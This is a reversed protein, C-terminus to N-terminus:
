AGGSGGSGSGSAGTGGSGSVAAGAAGAGAMGDMCMTAADTTCLKCSSACRRIDCQVLRAALGLPYGPDSFRQSIDVMLASGAAAAIVDKCPGTAQEFTGGTCEETSASGCLCPASQNAPDGARPDICSSRRFCTLAEACLTSVREGARPGSLVTGTAEFCETRRGACIPDMMECSTCAALDGTAGNGGAGASGARGGMGARAPFGGGRGARGRSPSEDYSIDSEDSGGDLDSPTAGGDQAGGDLEVGRIPAGSRDEFGDNDGCACLLVGSLLGSVLVSSPRPPRM